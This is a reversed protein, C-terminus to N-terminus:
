WVYNNILGGTFKTFEAKEKCDKEIMEDLKKLGARIEAKQKSANKDFYKNILREREEDNKQSLLIIVATQKAINRSGEYEQIFQSYVNFLSREIPFKENDWQKTRWIIRWLLCAIMDDPVAFSEFLRDAQVKDTANASVKVLRSIIRMGTLEVRVVMTDPTNGRMIRITSIDKSDLFDNYDYVRVDSSKITYLENLTALPIKRGIDKEDWPCNLYASYAKSLFGSNKITIDMIQHEKDIKINMERKNSPILQSLEEFLSGYSGGLGFMCNVKMGSLVALKVKQNLSFYLIRLNSINIDLQEFLSLILVLCFFHRYATAYEDWGTTIGTLSIFRENNFTFIINKGVTKKQESIGNKFTRIKGTNYQVHFYNTITGNRCDNVFQTVIARQANLCVDNYQQLQEEYLGAEFFVDNLHSLRERFSESVTKRREKDQILTFTHTINGLNLCCSTEEIISNYNGEIDDEEIHLWDSSKILTRLPYEM